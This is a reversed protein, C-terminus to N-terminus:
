AKRMAARQPTEWIARAGGPLAWTDPHQNAASRHQMLVWVDGTSATHTLLLGAAGHPDRMTTNRTVRAITPEVLMAARNGVLYQTTEGPHVIVDVGTLAAWLGLDERLRIALLAQGNREAQAADADRRRSAQTLEVATVRNLDLYGILVVSSDAENVFAMG